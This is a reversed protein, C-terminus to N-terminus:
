NDSVVHTRCSVGTTSWRDNQKIMLECAIQYQDTHYERDFQKAKKMKSLKHENPITYQYAHDVGILTDYPTLEYVYNNLLAKIISLHRFIKRRNRIDEETLPIRFSHLGNQVADQGNYSIEHQHVYVKHQPNSHTTLITCEIWFSQNSKTLCDTLVPLEITMPRKRSEELYRIGDSRYRFRHSAKPQRHMRMIPDGNRHMAEIIAALDVTESFQNVSSQLYNAITTIAQLHDNDTTANDIAQIDTTSQLFDEELNTSSAPLELEKAMSFLDSLVSTDDLKQYDITPISPSPSNKTPLTAPNSMGLETSFLLQDIAGHSTDFLFLDKDELVMNSNNSLEYEWPEFQELDM